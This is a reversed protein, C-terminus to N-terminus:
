LIKFADIDIRRCSQSFILKNLIKLQQIAAFKILMTIDIIIAEHM